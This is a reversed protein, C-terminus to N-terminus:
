DEDGEKRGVKRRQGHLGIVAVDEVKKSRKELSSKVSKEESGDDEGRGCFVGSKDPTGSSDTVGSASALVKSSQRAGTWDGRQFCTLVSKLGM